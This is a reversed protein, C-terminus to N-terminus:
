CFLEIVNVDGPTLYPAYETRVIDKKVVVENPKLDPVKINNNSNKDVVLKEAGVNGEASTKLKKVDADVNNVGIVNAVNAVDPERNM